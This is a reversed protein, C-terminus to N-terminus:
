KERRILLDENHWEEGVQLTVITCLESERLSYRDVIALCLDRLSYPAGSGWRNRSRVRILFRM